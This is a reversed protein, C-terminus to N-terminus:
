SAPRKHADDAEKVAEDIASKIRNLVAFYGVGDINNEEDERGGGALERCMKLWVMAYCVQTYDLPVGFIVSWGVKVRSFVDLPHGHQLPREGHVLKLAQVVWLNDFEEQGAVDLDAQVEGQTPKKQAKPKKSAM